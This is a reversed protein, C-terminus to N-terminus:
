ESAGKMFIERTARRKKAREDREKDSLNKRKQKDLDERSKEIQYIKNSSETMRARSRVARESVFGAKVQWKSKYREQKVTDFTNDHVVHFQPSVLGKNRDLVLSVSKAHQPSKGLYIGM